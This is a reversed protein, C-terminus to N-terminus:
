DEFGLLKSTDIVKNCQPCYLLNKISVAFPITKKKTQSKYYISYLRKGCSCKPNIPM